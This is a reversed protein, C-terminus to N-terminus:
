ARNLNLCQSTCSIKKDKKSTSVTTCNTSVHKVFYDHQGFAPHSQVQSAGM